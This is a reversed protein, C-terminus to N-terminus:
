KLAFGARRLFAALADNFEQPRELMLFHGVGDWVRYDLDPIVSRYFQENDAPWFPSKAFIALVPVKVPDPKWLAEDTMGEGAALAVHQPTGAMRAKLDDRLSAPMQQGLMGGAMAQMMAGYKESRLPALMQKEVVEKPAFGRIAGDVFVLARAKPPFLRYFERVVPTGMSHGVLVARRVGADRMVAEVSRAFLQMTYARGEPKDSRGHGPLDVSIVRARGAFAPAQLRWFTADCTWGHVFVLAEDGRGADEYHVRMGDFQAFRSRPQSNSAARPQSAAEAPAPLEADLLEVAALVTEAARVFFEPSLNEFDDTPRHYDRHDEVGFYLFPVGARHFAAHDSQFTWDNQGLKPDDHGQLLKVPARSAVRAVLPKLFPHHHAGAAYLEGRENRGIMDLNVNLAIQKLDVPPEAVFRTAGIMRDEEADFAAFIISHKPPRRSFHAALALLGAVGSANDDAGNYVQGERVGVHDYHASVVIYRDPRATGRAYGVVNAGERLGATRRYSFQFTQLYSAGFPKLGAEKFRAAVYARARRGGETGTERGQMEDSSLTRADALLQAADLVDSRPAPAPAGAGKLNPSQAAGPWAACTLLTLLTLVRKM